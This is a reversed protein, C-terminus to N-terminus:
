CYQERFALHYADPKKKRCEMCIPKNQKPFGRVSALHDNQRGDLLESGCVRCIDLDESEFNRFGMTAMRRQKEQEMELHFKAQEREKDTSARMYGKIKSTIPDFKLIFPECHKDLIEGFEQGEESHRDLELNTFINEHLETRMREWEWLNTKDKGFHQIYLGVDDKSVEYNGITVNKM